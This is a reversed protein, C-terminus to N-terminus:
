VFKASTSRLAANTKALDRIEAQLKEIKFSEQFHYPATEGSNPVTADHAPESDTKTKTEIPDPRLYLELIETVGLRPIQIEQLVPQEIKSM